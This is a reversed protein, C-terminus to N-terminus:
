SFSGHFFKIETDLIDEIRLVLQTTYLNKIQYGVVEYQCREEIYQTLIGKANHLSLYQSLRHVARSM